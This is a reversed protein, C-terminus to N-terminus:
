KGRQFLVMDLSPPEKGTVIECCGHAQGRHHTQHNFVHLWIDGLRQEFAKGSTNHYSITEGFAAEDYSDIVAVIREDEAARADALAQRDEFLIADLRAPAEGEGTIRALWIRDGVLIHNLTRHLSGFAMGTDRRYPEEDMALAAAYLRANAWRNYAAFQRFLAKSM